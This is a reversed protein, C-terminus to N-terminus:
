VFDFKVLIDGSDLLPPEACLAALQEGTEGSLFDPAAGSSEIVIVHWSPLGNNSYVQYRSTDDASLARRGIESALSTFDGIKDPRVRYFGVEMTASPKGPVFTNTLEHYYGPNAWNREATSPLSLPSSPRQRQYDPDLGFAESHDQEDWVMVDIFREPRQASQAVHKFLMGPYKGALESYITHQRAIREPTNANGEIQVIVAFM